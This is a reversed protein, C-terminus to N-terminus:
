LHPSLPASSLPIHQLFHAPAGSLSCLAGRVRVLHVIIEPSPLPEQGRSLKQCRRSPFSPRPSQPGQTPIAGLTKQPPWLGSPHCPSSGSHSPPQYPSSACSLGQLALAPHTTPVGTGAEHDPKLRPKKPLSPLSEGRYAGTTGEPNELTGQTAMVEASHQTM